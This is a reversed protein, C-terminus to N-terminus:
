AAPFGTHHMEKRRMRWDLEMTPGRRPQAHVRCRTPVLTESAGDDHGYTIESGSPVVFRGHSVRAMLRELICLDAPNFEDDGFNLAFVKARISSLSPEPEYDASSKLSYLVANPDTLAAQKPAGEIFPNGAAGGPALAQLHPIGDIMVRLL